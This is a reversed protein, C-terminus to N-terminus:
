QSSSTSAAGENIVANLLSSHCAGENIVSNLLLHRENSNGRCEQQGADVAAVAISDTILNAPDRSLPSVESHAIAVESYIPLLGEVCPLVLPEMPLRSREITGLSEVTGSSSVIAEDPLRIIGEREERGNLIISPVEHYGEIENSPRSSIKFGEITTADFDHAKKLKVREVPMAEDFQSVETDHM